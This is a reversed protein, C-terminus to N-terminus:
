RKSAIWIILAVMAAAILLAFGLIVVFIGIAAGAIARFTRPPRTRDRHLILSNLNIVNEEFLWDFVTGFIPISGLIMDLLIYVVMRLIRPMPVRHRLAGVIIWASLLAGIIEGVGPILSLGADLGIRKKTGPVPVAEDMLFAFRRLVVLDQPLKEDPEIVEPILLDPM